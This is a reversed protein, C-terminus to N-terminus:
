NKVATYLEGLGWLGWKGDKKLCITHGSNRLRRFIADRKISTNGSELVSFYCTNKADIRIWNDNVLLDDQKAAYVPMNGPIHMMSVLLVGRSTNDIVINDSNRILATGTDTEPYVQWPKAYLMGAALLCCCYAILFKRGNYLYNIALVPLLSLFPYLPSIYVPGMVAQHTFYSIYLTFLILLVALCFCMVIRSKDSVILENREHRRHGTILYTFLLIIVALLIISTSPIGRREVGVFYGLLALVTKLLRLLLYKIEFSQTQSRFSTLQHYLSSHCFFFLTTGTIISAYLKYTKDFIYAPNPISPLIKFNLVFMIIMTGFLFLAFYYHNLLGLITILMIMLQDYITMRSNKHIIQVSKWVLLISFLTFVEYSRAIFTASMVGPSMAYTFMVALASTRSELVYRAFYYVLSINIISILLNLTPGTWTHVGFIMIWIHLLWFFLPPHVDYKSLDAQIKRFNYNTRLEIFKQWDKAKAWQAYPYKKNAVVEDYEAQHGTAALYSIVEDHVVTPSHMIHYFRVFFALLLVLSFITAAKRSCIDDM